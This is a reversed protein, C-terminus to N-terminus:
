PKWMLRASKTNLYLFHKNHEETIEISTYFSSPRSVAAPFHGVPVTRKATWNTPKTTPHLRLEQSSTSDGRPTNDRRRGEILYWVRKQIQGRLHSGHAHKQTSFCAFEKQLNYQQGAKTRIRLESVYKIHLHSKIKIIWVSNRIPTSRQHLMYKAM